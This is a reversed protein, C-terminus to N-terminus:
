VNFSIHNFQAFCVCVYRFFTAFGFFILSSLNLILSVYSLSQEVKKKKIDKANATENEDVKAAEEESTQKTQTAM